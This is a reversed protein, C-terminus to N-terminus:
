RPPWGSAAAEWGSWAERFKRKIGYFLMNVRGVSTGLEKAIERSSYGSQKRLLLVREDATLKSALEQVRINAEIQEPTGHRSHLRGLVVESVDSGLTARALKMSSHRLRTYAVNSLTTWAYAELNKAPGSAAESHAIRQGAEELIEIVLVDDELTLFRNRFRPLLDRLVGQIRPSLPRGGADLLIETGVSKM